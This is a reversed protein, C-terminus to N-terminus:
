LALDHKKKINYDNLDAIGIMLAFQNYNWETSIILSSQDRFEFIKHIKM